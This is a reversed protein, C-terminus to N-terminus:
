ANSVAPEVTEREHREGLLRQPTNALLLLLLLGCALIPRYGPLPTYQAVVRHAGAGVRVAFFGPAVRHVREALTGDVWVRWSPFTTARFVVDVPSPGDVEAELRGPERPIETLRTRTPDCGAPDVAEIRLAPGESPEKRTELETWRHPSLLEDTAAEDRLAEVLAARLRADSGRWRARICGVGIATGKPLRYLVLTQSRLLATWPRKLPEIDREARLAYRVGLAEARAASGSRGIDLRRFARELIGVHAGVANWAMPVASKEDLGHVIRCRPLEADHQGDIALRGGSLGALSPSRLLQLFGPVAQACRGSATKAVTERQLLECHAASSPFAVTALALFALGLVEGCTAALRPRERAMLATGLLLTGEQLVVVALAAASLPALAVVRLPQLFSTLLRGVGGLHTLFRGSVSLLLTAAVAALVARAAARRAMSTAGFVGVACLATLVPPRKSDLLDGDLLWWRLRSADFGLQRWGFEPPWGFPVGLTGLGQGYIALGTVLCCAIVHVLRRIAARRGSALTAFGAVALTAAAIQPHAAMALAALSTAAWPATPVAICGVLAVCLPVACVQSLLGLQFFAGYGGVFPNYPAVWTVFLAGVVSFLPRAGCRLGVGYTVAPAALTALFGVWHTAQAAGLGARIAGAVLLWGLSPYHHGFPFGGFYTDLWGHPLGHAAIDAAVRAHGMADGFYTAVEASWPALRMLPLLAVGVAFWGLISEGRNPAKHWPDEAPPLRHVGSKVIFLAIALSALILSGALM